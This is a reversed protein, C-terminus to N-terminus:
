TGAPSINSTASTAPPSQPEPPQVATAERLEAALLRLEDPSAALHRFRVADAELVQALAVRLGDRAREIMEQVAAEGFLANMLKQNLLATGAAIGVEAGTLGGTHVFVALMVTVAGANVGLSVGRALRHKGAGKSAVDAAITRVWEDLAARTRAETETSASWLSADAALLHGGHADTSWDAATRRAADTAFALVLATVDDRAGSTVVAVPAQPTGCIGAMVAGRVRGIGRSFFRTVQDAGVFSHWQRIVEERLVGGGALREVLLKWEQGYDDDVIRLLRDSVVASRELDQAVQDALPALGAIAGRLAQAAIARRRDRDHQLADIGAVLVDAYGPRLSQGDATAAGEPIGVIEVASPSRGPAGSLQAAVPALRTGGFLRRVDDLVVAGDADPPLRNVVVVVPLGRQEIRHLVDWPVRDAYRSATTVFICLDALEVLTDALLRNAHEISDVDPADVLVVGPRAGDSHVEYRAPPLTALAGVDAVARADDLTALLIARRTTPRLVGAESVRQGAITNILTSKGSGTSGLLLVILPADLDRARPLLYDRAHDLLSRARERPGPEDAASRTEATPLALDPLAARTTALAVLRDVHAALDLQTLDATM